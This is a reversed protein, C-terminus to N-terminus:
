PDASKPNQQLYMDPVRPVRPSKQLEARLVQRTKERERPDASGGTLRRMGSRFGSRTGQAIPKIMTELIFSKDANSRGTAMDDDSFVEENEDLLFTSQPSVRQNLAPSTISRSHLGPRGGTVGGINLPAIGPTTFATPTMIGPDRSSKLNDALSYQLSAVSANRSLSKHLIPLTQQDYISERTDLSSDTYIETGPTNPVLTSSDTVDDDFFDDLSDLKMVLDSIDGEGMAEEPRIPNPRYEGNSDFPFEDSRFEIKPTNTTVDTKGSWLQAIIQINNRTDSSHIAPMPISWGSEEPIGYLSQTKDYEKRFARSSHSGAMSMRLHHRDLPTPTGTITMVHDLVELAQPCYETQLLRLLPSILDPGKTSIELKKMDILPIIECLIQMTNIKVWSLKSTLLSLLFTLLGFELDPFFNSQIASVIQLVFDNPSRYRRAKFSELVQVLRIANQRDAVVMLTELATNFSQDKREQSFYHIFRPMNALLTFALRGDDGVLSNSPLRLLRDLLHLTRDLSVGSRVGKYLLTAIGDFHGEWREPRNDTLAKFVTPSSLDLKDMLRELLILSEMYEAEHVTNLCAVTAWFLQPYKILDTPDLATVIDQLTAVVEITFSVLDLDEDSITTSLRALLDALMQQDLASLVCRFLQISRYALHRVACSSAWTVAMRGLEEAIGPYTISFIQVVKGAVGNLSEFIGKNSLDERNKGSNDDYSWVVSPDRRRIAEIFDEIGRKKAAMSSDEIRSIVLEHLLHVLMERAQDQVVPTYHDWLILVVTLLLPIHEKALQVPSVM